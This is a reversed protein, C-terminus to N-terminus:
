SLCLEEIIVACEERSLFERMGSDRVRCLEVIQHALRVENANDNEIGYWLENINRTSFNYKYDLHRVNGGFISYSGYTGMNLIYKVNDNGNSLGMKAFSLARKAFWLEPSM